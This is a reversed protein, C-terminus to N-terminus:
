SILADKRLELDAKKMAEMRKKQDEINKFHQLLGGYIGGILSIIVIITILKFLELPFNVVMFISFAIAWVIIITWVIAKLRNSKM